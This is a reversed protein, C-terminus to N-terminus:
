TVLYRLIEKVNTILMNSKIPISTCIGFIVIILIKIKAGEVAKVTKKISGGKPTINNIKINDVVYRLILCNRVPQCFILM